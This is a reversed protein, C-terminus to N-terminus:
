ANSKIVSKTQWKNSFYRLIVVISAACWGCCSAAAIALFGIKGILLITVALKVFISATSYISAIITDGVGTLMGGLGYVFANIPYFWLCIQFYSYGSSIMESNQGVILSLAAKGFLLLLISLVVAIALSIQICFKTGQKLRKIENAGCNQGAFISLSNGLAQLPLLVFAEIRSAATMGGINGSGFQNIFGQIILMGLFIAMQQIIIPTCIKLTLAFLPRNFHIETKAPIAAPFRKKAQVFLMAGSVAQALITAIAIGAIGIGFLVLVINLILNIISSLILAYLPLKTEGFSRMIAGLLNYFISFPIGLFLLQLYITADGLIEAPTQILTLIPKAIILGGIAMTVGLVAMFIAVTSTLAKIEDYKKAGYFQALLISVGIALGLIVSVFLLYIPVAVGIASISNDTLLRGAVIADIINYLQQLLTSMFIPISFLLLQKKINGTVLSTNKEMQNM